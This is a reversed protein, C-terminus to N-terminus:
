LTLTKKAKKMMQLTKHKNDLAVSAEKAESAEKSLDVLLALLALARTKSLILRCKGIKLFKRAPINSISVQLIMDKDEMTVLDMIMRIKKKKRKPLKMKKLFLAIKTKTPKKQGM